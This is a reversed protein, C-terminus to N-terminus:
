MKFRVVIADLIVSSNYKEIGQINQMISVKYINTQLPTSKTLEVDGVGM